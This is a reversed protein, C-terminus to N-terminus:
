DKMETRTSWADMGDVVEVEGETRKEEKGGGRKPTGM